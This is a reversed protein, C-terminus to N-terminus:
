AERRQKAQITQAGRGAPRTILRGDILKKQQQGISAPQEVSSAKIEIAVEIGQEDGGRLRAIVLDGEKSGPVAELVRGQLRCKVPAGSGGAM